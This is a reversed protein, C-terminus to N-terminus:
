YLLVFLIINRNYNKKDILYVEIRDFLKNYM